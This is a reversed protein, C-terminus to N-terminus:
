LPALPRPTFSGDQAYCGYQSQITEDSDGARSLVKLGKENQLTLTDGDVDYQVRVTLPSAACTGHTQHLTATGDSTEYTGGYGEVGYSGDNLKCITAELYGGDDEFTIGYACEYPGESEALWTGVIAPKAEGDGCGLVVVCLLAYGNMKM